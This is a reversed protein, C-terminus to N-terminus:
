KQVSAYYFYILIPLLMFLWSVIMSTYSLLVYLLYLFGKLTIKKLRIIEKVEFLATGFLNKYGFIDNVLYYGDTGPLFFNINFFTRITISIMLTYALFSLTPYETHYEKTFVLLFLFLIIDFIIGGSNVWLRERKEKLFDVFIKNYFVPLIFIMLGFGFITAKGGFKKYLLYHGTEHFLSSLISALYIFGIISSFSVPVAYLTKLYNEKFLLPERLLDVIFFIMIAALSLLTSNILKNNEVIRELRTNTFDITFIEFLKRNRKFKFYFWDKSQKKDDNLIENEKAKLILLELQQIEIDIIGKFHEIVDKKSNVTSYYKLVEYEVESMRVINESNKTKLFVNDQDNLLVVSSENWKM